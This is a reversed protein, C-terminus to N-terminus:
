LLSTKMSDMPSRLKPIIDKRAPNWQSSNRRDITGQQETVIVARENPNPIRISCCSPSLPETEERRLKVVNMNAKAPITIADDKGGSRKM